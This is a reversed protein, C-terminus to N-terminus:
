QVEVKEGNELRRVTTLGFSHCDNQSRRRIFSYLVKGGGQQATTDHSEPSLMVQVFLPM